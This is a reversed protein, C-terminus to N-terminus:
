GFAPDFVTSGYKVLRRQQVLIDLLASLFTQGVLSVWLRRNLRM